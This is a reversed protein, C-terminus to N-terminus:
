QRTAVRVTPFRAVECGSCIWNLHSVNLASQLARVQRVFVSFYRHLPLHFSIKISDVQDPRLFYIADFWDKIAALCQKIVNLTLQRTSADKLHSVLAWMPSASAELEASFAAYYTNPEFEIHSEMERVNVNMGQFMSLFDFWMNLLREDQMFRYAIPPHSLVNNLDSVLPWYCHDKMVHEACDVVEHYNQKPDGLTNQTLVNSMMNKLSSVMIHLLHLQDTMRLALDENSFLQVSVHVVRNSLSDSNSSKALMMSMRSYHLVFARTFAEKYEADPLMNLLLCVLKQPFEYKVTWFVLEELFTHHTLSATLSPYDNFEPPPDPNPLSSLAESYKVASRRMFDAYESDTSLIQETLLQYHSSNVLCSTIVSRMATGMDCFEHLLNLFKDAKEITDKYSQLLVDPAAGSSISFNDFM